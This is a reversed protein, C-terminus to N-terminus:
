DPHGTVLFRLLPGDNSAHFETQYGGPGSAGHVAEPKSVVIKVGDSESLIAVDPPDQRNM